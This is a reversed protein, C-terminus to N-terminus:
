VAIGAIIRKREERKQLCSRLDDKTYSWTIPKPNANNRAIFQGISNIVHQKSSFNNPTLLKRQLVSFWIEIQNLWSSHKPLYVVEVNEFNQAIWAPFTQPRHAPGGDVILTIKKSQKCVNQEMLQNIFRYFEVKRKRDYCRGFVWGTGVQYAAILQVAGKREYESDLHVPYNSGAGRVTERKHYRAQISPKEDICFISHDKNRIATYLELIKEAKSVFQPDPSTQWSHFRWPRIKDEKLWRRVTRSSISNTIRHDILTQTLDESSWRSLAIGHDKPLTCSLAVLAVRVVTDFRCPAGPRPIDALSEPFTFGEQHWRKEWNAVTNRHCGVRAAIQEHTLKPLTVILLAIWARQRVSWPIKRQRVIKRLQYKNKGSLKIAYKRSYAGM